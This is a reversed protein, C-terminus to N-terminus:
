KFVNLLGALGTLTGAITEATSPQYQAQQGTPVLGEEQTATPVAGQVGKLTQLMNNIQEQSYGKQQLFDQYALDLNKQGQAQQTAGVGTVAEAGTLGYKQALGGMEAMQQAASLATGTQTNALNGATGALQAQRALDTASLGAAESYGSQLAKVQQALIDANVDRLARATDTLMGSPASSGGRPGYGLQGAQIFKSTIAPMLNESLNRQGLEAIRNTVAENYPNMYQGINAVTSQGANQLYPQATTLAGPQAAAAGTAATAATLAPQYATAAQETMQFGQQQAPTFEAVRPMPATQYPLASVAQQNALIQRGYDTYWSPLVTQSTLSKVASGAPIQAGEALFDSLAM